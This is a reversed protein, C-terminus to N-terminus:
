GRALGKKKKEGKEKYLILDASKIAEELCEDTAEDLVVSGISVSLKFPHLQKSNYENLSDHIRKSIDSADDENKVTSFVVFEDGGIRGIIDTERLTKKLVKSFSSIAIDGESHGYTDNIFKLGDMDIVLVISKFDTSRSLFQLRSLAFRYFGRRNLFGTLEDTVSLVHVKSLLEAGKVASSINMRLTEYTDMRINNKYPLYLVGMEENEFFLPLFLFARREREFDFVDIKRIDSILTTDHEIDKINIKRDGDFGIWTRIVKDSDFSTTEM